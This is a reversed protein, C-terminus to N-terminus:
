SPSLRLKARFLRPFYAVNDFGLNDSIESITLDSDILLQRAHDIRLETVLSKPSQGVTRKFVRSFHPLSYGCQRALERACNVQSEVPSSERSMTPTDLRTEEAGGAQPKAFRSGVM